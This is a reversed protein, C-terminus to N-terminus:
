ARDPFKEGLRDMEEVLAKLEDRTMVCEVEATDEGDMTNPLFFSVAVRIADEEETQAAIEFYPEV